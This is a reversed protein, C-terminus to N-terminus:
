KKFADMDPKLAKGLNKLGTVPNPTSDSIKKKGTIWDTLTSKTNFFKGDENKIKINDALCKVYETSGKGIKKFGELESCKKKEVAQLSVNLFGAILVFLLIKKM